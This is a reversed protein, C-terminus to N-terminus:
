PDCPAPPCASSRPRHGLWAPRSFRTTNAVLPLEELPLADFSFRFAEIRVPSEDSTLCEESLCRLPRATAGLLQRASFTKGSEILKQLTVGNVYDRVAYYTSGDAYAAVDRTVVLNRHVFGVSRTSLDVFRARIAPQMAFEPRLVRIFVESGALRHRALYSATFLGQGLVGRIEYPSQKEVFLARVRELELALRKRELLLISRNRLNGRLLVVLHDLLMVLEPHAEFAALGDLISGVKEEDDGRAVTEIAVTAAPWGIAAVAKRAQERVREAPHALCRFIVPIGSPERQRELLRLM